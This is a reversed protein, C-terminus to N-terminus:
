ARKLLKNITNNAEALGNTHYKIDWDYTSKANALKRQYEKTIADIRQQYETMSNDLAKQHYKRDHLSQAMLDVNTWYNKEDTNRTSNLIGEFDIVTLPKFKRTRYSRSYVYGCRIFGNSTRLDDENYELEIWKHTKPNKIYWGGDKIIKYGLAELEAQWRAKRKRSDTTLAEYIMENTTM